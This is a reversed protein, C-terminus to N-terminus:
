PKAFFDAADIRQLREPGFREDDRGEGDGVQHEAMHAARPGELPRGSLLAIRAADPTTV